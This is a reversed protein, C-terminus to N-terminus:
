PTSTFFSTLCIEVSIFDSVNFFRSKKFHTLAFDVPLLLALFAALFRSLFSSGYDTHANYRTREIRSFTKKYSITLLEILAQSSIRFNCIHRQRESPRHLLPRWLRRPRPITNRLVCTTGNIILCVAM